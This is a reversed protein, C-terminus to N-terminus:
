RSVDLPSGKWTGEVHRRTPTATYEFEGDPARVSWTVTDTDFVHDGTGTLAYGDVFACDAFRISDRVTEPVIAVFGGARCGFRVEAKGDWLVYAPDAFIENEAGIMAGMPDGFDAASSLPVYPQAVTGACEITREAPRRDKLLLAVVPGDVCPDGRGFTVHPGGATRILYGDSLRAAITEAGAIPTVPDDTAGLVFVPYPTSTLPAPRAPTAPQFPWFLCPYQSTYVEDTRLSTVGAAKGAAEVAGVDHPDATPSVRYDACTIAHYSFSSVGIGEGSGIADV